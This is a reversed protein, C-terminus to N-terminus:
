KVQNSLENNSVIVTQNGDSYEIQFVFFGLFSHIFAIFAIFLMWLRLMVRDL